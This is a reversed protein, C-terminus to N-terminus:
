LTVALHQEFLKILQELGAQDDSDFRALLPSDIDLVAIIEGKHRLPLVIESNSAADCAIHGPFEHVDKVLQVQGTAVATGCVGKGVAIRVCAVQGQFPGLVLEGARMIYFGAWNLDPLQNFLLASLNAMNAILDTEGDILAQAQQNLLRYLATKDTSM